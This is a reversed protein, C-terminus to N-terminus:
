RGANSPDGVPRYALREVGSIAYLADVDRLRMLCWPSSLGLGNKTYVIDAAVFASVHVMFGDQKRRYVVIDGVRLPGDVTEYNDRLKEWAIEDPRGPASATVLLRSDPRDASFNLATWYCSPAPVDASSQVYVNLLERALPPLLHMVDLFRMDSTSAFSELLTRISKQQDLRWYATLGEVANSEPRELLLIVAPARYIARLADVRETPDLRHYLTGFDSLMLGHRRRYLLSTVVERARASLLTRGFWRTADLETPIMVAQTADTAMLGHELNHFLRERFSAPTALVLDSSPRVTLVGNADPNATAFLNHLDRRTEDPMPTESVVRLIGGRTTNRFSWRPQTEPVPVSALLENSPALLVDYCKLKGWPGAPLDVLEPPEHWSPPIRKTTADGGSGPERPRFVAGKNGRFRPNLRSVESEPLLEWPGYIGPRRGLVLGDAIYVAAFPWQTTATNEFVVIDGFQRPEDIQECNQKLWATFGAAIVPGPDIDPDFFGAALIANDRSPEWATSFDPPYTYLVSRAFRPLLHALDIRDSGEIRAVAALMPEVTRSRGHSLWYAAQRSVVEPETNTSVVKVFATDTGLLQQFFEIRTAADPLASEVAFLDAFIVRRGETASWRRIREVAGAFRPDAELAALGHETITVPWRYSANFAHGALVSWWRQRAAADFLDLLKSDPVIVGERTTPAITMRRRLEFAVQEPFRGASMIEDFREAMTPALRWEGPFAPMGAIQRRLPELRLTTQFLRPETPAGVAATPQAFSRYVALLAFCGVILGRRM